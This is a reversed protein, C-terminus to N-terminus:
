ESIQDIIWKEIEIAEKKIAFLGFSFAFQLCKSDLLSPLSDPISSALDLILSFNLRVPEKSNIEAIGKVVIDKNLKWLEQIFHVNSHPQGLYMPLLISYLDELLNHGCHPKVSSITLLLVDPFVKIPHDFIKRVEGYFSTDSLEILTEIAPLSIWLNLAKEEAKYKSKVSADLHTKINDLKFTGPEKQELEFLSRVFMFQAGKNRWDKSFAFKELDFQPQKKCLGLFNKMARAGNFRYVSVDKHAEAPMVDFNEVIQPGWKIHAFKDKIM